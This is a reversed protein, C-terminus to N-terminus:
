GSTSRRITTVEIEVRINPWVLAPIVGLMFLPEHTIVAAVAEAYKGIHAAVGTSISEFETGM